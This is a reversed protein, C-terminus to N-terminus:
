AYAYMGVDDDFRVQGMIELVCCIACLEPSERELLFSRFAKGAAVAFRPAIVHRWAM